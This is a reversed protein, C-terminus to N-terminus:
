YLNSVYDYDDNDGCYVYHIFVLYGASLIIIALVKEVAWFTAIIENDISYSETEFAHTSSQIVADSDTVKVPESTMKTEFHLNDVHATISVNQFYTRAMNDIDMIFSIAVSNIILDSVEQSTIIFRSGIFLLSLLILFEPLVILVLLLFRKSVPAHLEYLLIRDDIAEHMFGLRNARLIVYTETTISKFSPWLFILFISIVTHELFNDRQCMPSDEFSPTGDYVWYILCAQIYFTM